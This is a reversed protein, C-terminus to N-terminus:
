QYHNAQQKLRTSRVISLFLDRLLHLQATTRLLHPLRFFNNNRPDSSIRVLLVLMPDYLVTQIREGKQSNEQFM